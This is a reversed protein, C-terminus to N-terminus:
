NGTKQKQQGEKEKKLGNERDETEATTRERELTWKRQRRNGIGYKRKRLAMKETRYNRQREKELELGNEGDKFEVTTEGREKTL